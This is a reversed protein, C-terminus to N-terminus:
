EINGVVKKKGGYVVWLPMTVVMAYGYRFDVVPAAILLTLTLLLLLIKCLVPEKRRISIVTSIVLLWFFAGISFLMGYLPVFDGMKLAIEKYKVVAKGGIKPYWYLGYANDMIGDMDAVKTQVGPYIYGGELDYWAKLALEPNSKVEKMWLKLYKSKNNQIEEPHGARILEKINDAFDAAYLDRIYTTDIATQILALDEEDLVADEVLMRALQQAPVSLSEVLDPSNVQFLTFVPGKILVVSIIVAAVSILTRVIDKRFAFLLFPTWLIFAIWANSRLLAFLIGLLVLILWQYATPNHTVTGAYKDTTQKDIIQGDMAQKGEAQLKGRMDCVLCFLLMAVGAFIIDKWITVAFVANFPVIGYFLLARIQKRKGGLHMILNGCCLAMFIMQFLTYCAIGIEPNGSLGYGIQYFLKILLTHVVPHHNSYPEVGIIQEYQVLSDATMIGPFEYLFYPMWCLLCVLSMVLFAKIGKYPPLDEKVMFINNSNAFIVARDKSLLAYFINSIANVLCAFGIFSIALSLYRFLASNFSGTVRDYSYITMALATALSIATSILGTRLSIEKGLSSCNNNNHSDQSGTNGLASAWYVLVLFVVTLPNRVSIGLIIQLAWAGFLGQAANIIKRLDLNLVKM